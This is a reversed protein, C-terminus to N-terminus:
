QGLYTVHWSCSSSSSSSDSVVFVMEPYDQKLLTVWGGEGYGYATISDGITIVAGAKPHLNLVHKEEEFISPVQQMLEEITAAPRVALDRLM